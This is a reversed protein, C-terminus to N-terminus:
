ISGARAPEDEERAARESHNAFLSLASPQNKWRGREFDNLFAGSHNLSGVPDTQGNIWCRPAEHPPVGSRDVSGPSSSYWSDQASRSIRPSHDSNTFYSFFGYDTDFKPGPKGDLHNIPFWKAPDAAIFDDSYPKSAPFDLLRGQCPSPDIPHDFSYDVQSVSIPTASASSSECFDLPFQQLRFENDAHLQSSCNPQKISGVSTRRRQMKTPSKPNSKFCNPSICTATNEAQRKLKKRYNRQAIRNQIRRREALDSIKTWDEDPNALKGPSARTQATEGVDTDSIRFPM